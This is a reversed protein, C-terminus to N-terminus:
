LRKPYESCACRTTQRFKITPPGILGPPIYSSRRTRRGTFYPILSLSLSLYQVSVHTWCYKKGTLLDHLELCDMLALALLRGNDSIAVKTTLDVEFREPLVQTQFSIADVVQKLGHLQKETDLSSPLEKHTFKLRYIYIIM